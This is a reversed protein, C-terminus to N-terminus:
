SQTARGEAERRVSEAWESISMSFSSRRGYYYDELDVAPVAAPVVALCESEAIAIATNLDEAYATNCSELPPM